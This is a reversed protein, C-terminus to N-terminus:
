VYGSQNAGAALRKKGQFDVHSLVLRGEGVQSELPQGPGPSKQGSLPQETDLFCKLSEYGKRAKRVMKKARGTQRKQVRNQAKGQSPLQRLQELLLWGWHSCMAMLLNRTQKNTKCSAALPQWFGRCYEGSWSVQKVLVSVGKLLQKRGRERALFWFSFHLIGTFVHKGHHAVSPSGQKEWLCWSQVHDWASKSLHSDLLM